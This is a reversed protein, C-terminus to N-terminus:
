PNQLPVIWAAPLLSRPQAALNVTHDILLQRKRGNLGVLTWVRVEVHEHGNRRAEQALFHAFQLLMDPIGVMEDIQSRILYDTPQAEWVEGTQPNTLYFRAAGQKHRLKMHWAFRHGEETWNSDGPYLFHRLPFVMQFLAYGCFFVLAMRRVSAPAAAPLTSAQSSPRIRDLLRRSWVPPLFIVLAALMFFPFIGINFLQSNTLHFGIATCLTLWRTRQWLIGPVFLVDFVLGGYSFLYVMWEETFWQGILPFDTREALWTRMPEGALWDPNIKAIGGYFYVLGLQWRLLWIQWTPVASRRIAPKRWADLSFQAHADVFILLLSLLCILYFHNLYHAQDFLFIYCFLVFFLAMCLRYHWGLLIGIALSGLALFLAYYGADPLAPLWEFGFYRFHFDPAIFYWYIWENRFYRWVEVLMIGGFAIRFLVLPAIDVPRFIRTLFGTKM